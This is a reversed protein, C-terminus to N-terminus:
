HVHGYTRRPDGPSSPSRANRRAVGRGAPAPRPPGTGALHGIAPPRSPPRRRPDRRAPHVGPLHAGARRHTIGAPTALVPITGGGARAAISAAAILDRHGGQGCHPCRFVRGAPRPVRRSCSPCTSSTGREDALRVAIGAAEAKDAVVTILHGIRWDRTRQNHRRGAKLDLVSRPDGVALTGIRRRVAWDVVM